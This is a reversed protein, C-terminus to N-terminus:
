GLHVYGVDAVLDPFGYFPNMGTTMRSSSGSMKWGKYQVIDTGGISAM